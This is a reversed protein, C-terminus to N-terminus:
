RVKNRTQKTYLGKDSEGFKLALWAIINFIIDGIDVTRYCRDRRYALIVLQKYVFLFSPEFKM